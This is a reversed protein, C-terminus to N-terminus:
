GFLTICDQENLTVPDGHQALLLLAKAQKLQYGNAFNGWERMNWEALQKAEDMTYAYVKRMKRLSFKQMACYDNLYDRRRDERAKFIRDIVDQAAAIVKASEMVITAM